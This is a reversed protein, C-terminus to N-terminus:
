FPWTSTEAGGDVALVKGTIWKAAPSVLFHAAQAIDEPTGLAQMPTNDLMTQRAKTDLFQALSETYITGPAIANVRIAPAFDQALQRTLHNLAAKVTAYSSFGAQAYHGAQSSINLVVGQQQKLHPACLQTLRMPSTVNFHYDANFQESSIDLANNPMAGGANNVLIDIRQFHALSQEVLKSLQGESKINCALALGEGGFAEIESLSQEVDALTRAVLVVKAGAKALQLAIAKGIGKGAGTVIAVKNNLKFAELGLTQDETVESVV